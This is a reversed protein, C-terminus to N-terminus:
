GFCLDAERVALLAWSARSLSWQCKVVSCTTLLEFLVKDCCWSHSQLINFWHAWLLAELLSQTIISVVVNPLFSKLYCREVDDHIFKPGKRVVNSCNMLLMQKHVARKLDWWLIETSNINGCIQPGICCNFYKKEALRNHDQQQGTIYSWIKTVYGSARATLCIAACKMTLEDNVWPCFPGWTLDDHRWKKEQCNTHPTTNPKWWIHHRANHGFVRDLHCQKPNENRPKNLQLRVSRLGETM